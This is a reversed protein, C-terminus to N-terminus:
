ILGGVIGLVGYILEFTSVEQKRMYYNILANAGIIVLIGGFIYSILSITSDPKFFLILGIVLMVSSSILSSIFMNKIETKMM